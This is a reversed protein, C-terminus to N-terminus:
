MQRVVHLETDRPRGRGAIASSGCERTSLAVAVMHTLNVTRGHRVRLQGHYRMSLYRRGRRSTGRGDGGSGGARSVMVATAAMVAAGAMDWLVLKGEEGHRAVHLNDYSAISEFLSIQQM